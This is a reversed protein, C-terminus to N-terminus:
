IALEEDVDEFLARRASEYLYASAESVTLQDVFDWDMENCLRLMLAQALVLQDEWHGELTAVSEDFDLIYWECQWAMDLYTELPLFWCEEGFGFQEITFDVVYREGDPLKFLFASHAPIPGNPDRHTWSLVSNPLIDVSLWDITAGPIHRLLQRELPKMFTEVALDCMNWKMLGARLLAPVSNNIAAHMPTIEGDVDLIAQIVTIGDTRLDAYSQFADIPRAPRNQIYAHFIERHLLAAHRLIEAAETGM